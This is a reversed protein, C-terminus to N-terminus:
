GSRKLIVHLTGQSEEPLTVTYISYDFNFSRVAQLTDFTVFLAPLEFMRKHDLDEIQFAVETGESLARVFPGRVYPRSMNQLQSPLPYPSLNMTEILKEYSSKPKTPPAPAPLVAPAKGSVALNKGFTLSVRIRTAPAGGNNV